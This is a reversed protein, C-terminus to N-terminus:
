ATEKRASPPQSDLPRRPTLTYVLRREIGFLPNIGPRDRLTLPVRMDAKAGQRIIRLVHNRAHEYLQVHTEHNDRDPLLAQLDYKMQLYLSSILHSVWRNKYPFFQTREQNSHQIAAILSGPFFTEECGALGLRYYLDTDERGWGVLLEDYGGNQEFDSRHCVFTGFHNHDHSGSRFFRGPKLHPRLWSLLDGILLIDADIFILWPATSAKAGLNRARALRFGKDDTVRVVRVGHHNLKVWDGTKQPCNYDVVVV